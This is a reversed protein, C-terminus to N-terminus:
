GHVDVVIRGRVRGALIEQGLHPVHGLPAVETLADLRDLPLDRVLRTWAQERRPLPCQVSDIGLLRVGRIIFPLVTAPLDAGGALGCAAVPAAYDAKALVSALTTGGVVDIAAAWRPRELPRGPTALEDRNVIEAAGLATLQDAAEPRGTSALVRYGLEALLLVAIGGVGGAAGTVLVTPGDAPTLGADELDLVALMATLGATGIAMARASTLRPPRRILWDAPVWQQGAYGGPHTMSLGFGTAVVEDGPRWREDRSEAVVGSLDIGCVLPFRSVVGPAGTVALGDKYNLSSHHVDVLVEAGGAAEPTWTDLVAPTGKAPSIVAPSGTM